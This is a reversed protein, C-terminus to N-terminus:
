SEETQNENGEKPPKIQDVYERNIANMRPSNFKTNASEVDKVKSDAWDKFKKALAKSWFPYLSLVLYLHKCVHGQQHPNRVMPRRTEKQLGYGKKWAIYKFGWYQFAPCNSVVINNALYTHPEEDLVIDYGEQEEIEEIGIVKRLCFEDVDNQGRSNNKEILDKDRFLHKYKHYVDYFKNLACSIGYCTSRSERANNAIHTSGSVNISALVLQIMDVINKSTSLWRFRDSVAGDGLLHGVLFSEKAEDCWDLVDTHVYKTKSGQGCFYKCDERFQKSSISVTLWRQEKYSAKAVVVRVHRREFYEKIDAAITGEENQNLTIVVYSGKGPIHGEALYYGLMRAYDKDFSSSGKYIPTCLMEGLKYEKLPHLDYRKFGDVIDRNAHKPIFKRSEFLKFAQTIKTHDSCPRLSKGCGCACKDRYTSFLLKHDESVVLPERVGKIFVRFWKKKKESKLLTVVKHWKCDSGLVYDFETVDEIVKYGEKTLVRTGKALCNCHVKLDSEKILTEVDRFSKAALINELLADTIELTQTWIVRKGYTGSATMFRLMHEKYEIAVLDTGDRLLARARLRVKLFTKESILKRYGAM